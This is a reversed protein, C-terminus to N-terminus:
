KYCFVSVWVRLRVARFLSFRPHYYTSVRMQYLVTETGLINYRKEQNEETHKQAWLTKGSGPLGVMLLVQLPGICM